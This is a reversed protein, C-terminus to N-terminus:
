EGGTDPTLQLIADMIRLRENTAEEMFGAPWNVVNMDEDLELPLVRAGNPDTDDVYLLSVQDRTLPPGEKETGEALIRRIGLLLHESHTEVIVHRGEGVLLAFFSALAVQADPHLHLEPQQCMFLGQPPTKLGQVLVPLVQSLGFGMDAFNAQINGMEFLVKFTSAEASVQDLRVKGSLGSAELWQSIQEIMHPSNRLSEAILVDIAHGGDLGIDEFDKGAFDYRREPATRFPGLARLYRLCYDLCLVAQNYPRTEKGPGYTAAGEDNAELAQLMIPFMWPGWPGEGRVATWRESQPSRLEWKGEGPNDLSDVYAFIATPHGTINTTIERIQPGYPDGSVIGIEISATLPLTSPDFFFPFRDLRVPEIQDDIRLDVTITIQRDVDHQYVIDRYSGADYLRGKLNLTNAFGSTEATQKLLLLPQLISSKGSSNRGVIVTLPAIPIEGSDRFCKFGQIQLGTIAM